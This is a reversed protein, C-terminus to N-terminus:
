IIENILRLLVLKANQGAYRLHETTLKYIDSAKGLKMDKNLIKNLDDMCMTPIEVTNEGKFELIFFNDLICTKYFHNDFESSVGVPKALMEADATFGELTDQDHYTGAPSHLTSPYPNGKRHRTNRIYSYFERKNKYDIQMITNNQKIFNLEAEYKYHHQFTKKAEKYNM